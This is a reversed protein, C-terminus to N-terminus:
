SKLASATACKRLTTRQEFNQAAISLERLNKGLGFKLPEQIRRRIEARGSLIDISHDSRDFTEDLSEM